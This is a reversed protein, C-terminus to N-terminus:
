KMSITFNKSMPQGGGKHIKRKMKMEFHFSLEHLHLVAWSCSNLLLSLIHFNLDGVIHSMYPLSSPRLPTLWYTFFPWLQSGNFNFFELAITFLSFRTLQFIIQEM